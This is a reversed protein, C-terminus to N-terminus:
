PPGGYTAERALSGRRDCAAITEMQVAPECKGWGKGLHWMAATMLRNTKGMRPGPEPSASVRKRGAPGSHGVFEVHFNEELWRWFSFLTVTVVISVPASAALIGVAVLLFRM